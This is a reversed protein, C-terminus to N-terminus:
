GDAGGDESGDLPTEGLRKLRAPLARGQAATAVAAALLRRIEDVHRQVKRVEAREDERWALLGRRATRTMQNLNNCAGNLQRLADKWAAMMEDPVALEGVAHRALRKILENRSLGEARAAATLAAKDAVSLRVSFVETAVRTSTKVTQDMEM